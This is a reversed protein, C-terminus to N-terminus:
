FSDPVRHCLFDTENAQGRSPAIEVIWAARFVNIKMKLADRWPLDIIV